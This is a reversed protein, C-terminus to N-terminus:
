NNKIGYKKGMKRGMTTEHKTWQCVSFIGETFCIHRHGKSCKYVKLKKAPVLKRFKGIKFNSYHEKILEETIGANSEVIELIQKYYNIM